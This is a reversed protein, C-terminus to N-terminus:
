WAYEKSSVFWAKMIDPHEQYGQTDKGLNRRTKYEREITIVRSKMRNKKECVRMAERQKGLDDEKPFWVTVRQASAREKKKVM